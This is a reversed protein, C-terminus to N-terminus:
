EEIRIAELYQAETFDEYWRGTHDLYVRVMGRSILDLLELADRLDGAIAYYPQQREWAHPLTVYTM